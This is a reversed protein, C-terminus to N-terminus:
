HLPATQTIEASNVNVNLLGKESPRKRKDQWFFADRLSGSLFFAKPRDTLRPFQPATGGLSKRPPGRVLTPLLRVCRQRAARQTVTRSNPAFGVQARRARQNARGVPTTGTRAPQSTGADSQCRLARFTRKQSVKERRTGHAPSRSRGRAALRSVAALSSPEWLAWIRRLGSAGRCPSSARLAQPTRGFPPKRM